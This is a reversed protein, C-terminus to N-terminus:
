RGGPGIAGAIGRIRPCSRLLLRLVFVRRGRPNRVLWRDAANRCLGRAPRKPRQERSNM